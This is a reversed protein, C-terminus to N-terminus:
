RCGYIEKGHKLHLLHCVRDVVCRESHFHETIKCEVHIAICVSSVANTSLSFTHYGLCGIQFVFYLM